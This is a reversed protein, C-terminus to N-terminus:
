KKYVYEIEGRKAASCLIEYCITGARKATQYADTMVDVLEGKALRGLRLQADMCLPEVQNKGDAAKFLDKRAVGDAYGVRVVSVGLEKARAREDATGLGYGLGGGVFAKSGVVRARVRMAKKLGLQSEVCEKQPMDDPLYGYLGLGVRLMDFAFDEGLTAGYTASLHAIFTSFYGKCVRCARVFLRRQEEACAQEHLYLHSFLGEICVHEHKLYKCIKGLLQRNAGYRNMGTDVKIHIRPSAGLAKAVRVMRKATVLDPVCAIWGNQVIAEADGDDIPPTMVLIDKGCAAAKIKFAEEVLAVAFCDAVGSLALAVAEAGHGYGDAKVVACLRKGSLRKWALANDVISKLNIEVVTKQM